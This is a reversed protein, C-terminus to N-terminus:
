AECHEFNWGILEVLKGDNGYVKGKFDRSSLISALKTNGEKPVLAESFIRQAACVAETAQEINTIDGFSASPDEDFTAKADDWSSGNFLEPVQQLSVIGGEQAKLRGFILRIGQYSQQDGIIFKVVSCTVSNGPELNETVTNSLIADLNFLYQGSGKSGRPAFNLVRTQDVPAGLEADELFIPEIILKLFKTM